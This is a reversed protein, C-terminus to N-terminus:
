DRGAAADKGSRKIPTVSGMAEDVREGLDGDRAIEDRQEPLDAGDLVGEPDDVAFSGQGATREAEWAAVKGATRELTRKNAADDGIAMNMAKFSQTLIAVVDGDEDREYDYRDFAHQVRSGVTTISHPEVIVGMAGQAKSLGDGTNTMRAQVDVIPVGARAYGYGASAKRAIRQEATEVEAAKSV